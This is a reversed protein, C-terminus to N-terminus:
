CTMYCQTVFLVAFRSCNMIIVLWSVDTVTWVLHCLRASGSGFIAFFGHFMISFLLWGVDLELYNSRVVKNVFLCEQDSRFGDGGLLTQPRGEVGILVLKFFYIYIVSVVSGSSWATSHRLTKTVCEKCDIKYARYSPTYWCKFRFVESCLCAFGCLIAGVVRATPIGVSSQHSQDIANLSTVLHRSLWPPHSKPNCHTYTITDIAM